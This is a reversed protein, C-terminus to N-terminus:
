KYNNFAVGKQTLLKGNLTALKLNISHSELKIHFQINLHIDMALPINNGPKM